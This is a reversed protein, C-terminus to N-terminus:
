CFIYLMGSTYKEMAAQYSRNYCLPVVIDHYLGVDMFENIGQGMGKNFIDINKHIDVEVNNKSLM